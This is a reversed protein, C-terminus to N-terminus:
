AGQKKDVPTPDMVGGGLAESGSLGQGTFTGNGADPGTRPPESVIGGDMPTASVPTATTTTATAAAANTPRMEASGASISETSTTRLTAPTDAVISCPPTTAQLCRASTQQPRLQAVGGAASQPPKGPLSITLFQGYFIHMRAPVDFISLPM